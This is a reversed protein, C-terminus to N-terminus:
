QPTPSWCLHTAYATASLGESQLKQRVREPDPNGPRGFDAAHIGDTIFLVDLGADNAGRVDTPLGDGIALIRSRDFMNLATFVADYIPAYPKGALITQGGQEAYLRALAGGCWVLRDGREVVIDPNACVMPLGKGALPALLERYDEPSEANDDYLGTCSILEAAEHSVFHLDLGEYVSLDREPGIHFVKAGPHAALTARTVDGSTVIADYAGEPHDGHATGPVGMDRLHSEVQSAPRPANTILAVRGGRGRFKCLADVADGSAVVGNHVVGWVDCLLVSYHEALEELGHVQNMM